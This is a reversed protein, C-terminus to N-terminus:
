ERQELVALHDVEDVAVLDLAPARLRHRAVQHLRELPVAGLRRRRRGWRQGAGRPAVLKGAVDCLSQLPAIPIFRRAIPATRADIRAHETAWVSESARM